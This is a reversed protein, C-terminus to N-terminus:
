LIVIDPTRQYFPGATKSLCFVFILSLFNIGANVNKKLILIHYICMDYSSDCSLMSSQKQGKDFM